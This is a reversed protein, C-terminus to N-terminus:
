VADDFSGHFQTWQTLRRPGNACDVEWFGCFGSAGVGVGVSYKWAPSQLLDNWCLLAGMSRAIFLRKEIRDHDGTGKFTGSAKKGMRISGMHRANEMRDYTRHPLAHMGELRVVQKHSGMGGALLKISRMPSCFFWNPSGECHSLGM